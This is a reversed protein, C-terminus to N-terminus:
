SVPAEIRVHTELQELDLRYLANCMEAPLYGPGADACAQGAIAGAAAYAALGAVAAEFPSRVAAFAATCATLGCGLATSLPMLLHGGCISVTRKGDTVYDIEGTIAVVAGSIEALTKAAAVAESAAATSDVGKGAAGEFGALSIIESANGRIVAPELALIDRATKTRYETAGAAVPDLIFPKGLDKMRVAAQKMADVWAPSLTGINIVLADALGAFEAAEESSHVMAPSAGLALLLNASSTMAVFNTINQVLPNKARVDQLASFVAEIQFTPRDSM